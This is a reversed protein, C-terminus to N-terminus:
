NQEQERSYENLRNYLTKLSIGLAEATQKRNGDFHELTKEILRREVDKISMGVMLEDGSGSWNPPRAFNEPLSDVRDRGLCLIAARMVTHKLERVNGPWTHRELDSIVSASFRIPVDHEAAIESLFHRALLAIDERRDRLAPVDIPLVMLRFYLDERFKDDAVARDLDTNTAAVVRANISVDREGGVRTIAKNELVRLLAVQQELPLEGIEDLFVTGNGAREFIGQRRGAAGTFSGKEHGFLESSILEKPIAGCNVPVFKAASDRMDHLARAVLDKGTGSEGTVLVTLDSPGYREISEYLRHMPESDGVLGAFRRTRARDNVEPEAPAIAELLDSKGVPKVLYDVVQGRVARVATEVSPHGTIIVTRLSAAEVLELGSGDPLALDVLQVDFTRQAKLARAEELNAATTVDHGASGLVTRTANAFHEDDDVLLISPMPPNAARTGPRSLIDDVRRGHRRTGASMDTVRM